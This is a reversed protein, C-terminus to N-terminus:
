FVFKAVIQGQRPLAIGTIPNSGIATSIYGFGATTQGAANRTQTAQANSVATGAPDNIRARNFVNTFEARINFTINEHIRFIRGASMNEVPRRMYRYDGYYAAATGFQGAPPAAWAAPNLVFTANPDFCHCNLNATYLPVGPVRDMFTANSVTGINRLLLSQLNNNAIPSLIPLGSQYGLYTSLTWDRAMASAVKAGASSGFHFAPVTYNIATNFQFPQDFQSIDKNLARNFVDNVVEGGTTAATPAIDAGQTLQKSWAFVATFSLGYSFRKTAKTQLSNYWTDGLPSYLSTISTFQPFPRLSQAVTASAPFGAYPLNGFGRSIALASNVRSILLQQDAPNNISLGHAALIQPTLANVDMLGPATWWAGRNGVYSAEVSFNSGIQRQVGISWQLQRAPRGANQDVYMKPPTLTGPSPYQGPDLDPWPTPTFPIGGQLTMAPQGFTASGVQTPVSIATTTQNNTPTGSYVVGFGARFVTKPDIQYAAGLRPGFAFPYIKALSCNCHGPGNGEFVVAGPLGGASPNPTTPSFDPYRGYQEKPYGQYDYRLGYDITLKRSAKWSDQAFFGWAYQGVRATPPNAITVNDVLGLLFSAYPFGVTGGNVSTTNLYPLATEAASFGYVGNTATYLLTPVGEFRVEAGFKYTHNSKVWTLSQNFTPKQYWINRNGTPGLNKVGGQANSANTFAPFMRNVTAGTLGLEQQANYNLNVVNDEFYLDM